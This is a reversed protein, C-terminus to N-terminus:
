DLLQAPPAAVPVETSTESTAPELTSLVRRAEEQFTRYSREWEHEHPRTRALRRVLGELARARARLAEAQALADDYQSAYVFEVKRDQCIGICPQPSDIKGCGICQWAKFRETM